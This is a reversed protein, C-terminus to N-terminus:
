TPHVVGVTEDPPTETARSFQANAKGDMEVGTSGSQSSRPGDCLGLMFALPSENCHFGLTRKQPSSTDPLNSRQSM